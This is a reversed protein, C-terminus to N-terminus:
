GLESAARADDAIPLGRELTLSSRWARPRSLALM